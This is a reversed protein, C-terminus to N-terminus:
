PSKLSKGLPNSFNELSIDVNEFTVNRGPLDLNKKWSARLKKQFPHRLPANPVKHLISLEGFIPM